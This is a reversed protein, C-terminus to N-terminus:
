PSGAGKTRTKIAYLGTSATVFLTKRDRGGFCVNGCWTEPVDVHEVKKGAPDYIDVGKGTLYVNGEDDVTM